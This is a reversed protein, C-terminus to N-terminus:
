NGGVFRLEGGAVVDKHDISAPRLQKGNLEVSVQSSGHLNGSTSLVFKEGAYYSQDLTIVARRFLPVGLRYEMSAPCAPYFGLASFVLWASIAGADDNGPLGSPGTGFQRDLIEGVLSRTRTEEGPFYTFLYPYAIDPENTITFQGNRFCEALKEVFPKSGGFLGALGDIAHPVFWTYHWANGEVYGPGGSGTWSGSGETRLPDFPTLWSGDRLRPRIFLSTTDFLNRYFGARRSFERYDDDKGFNGAMQALAWDSLCYELMTSAPGWVWWTETTDQEFPIFGYKLADHYGPRIPDSQPGPTTANKRCAAYAASSDFDRIGKLWSDAIVPVAPDGVMMYTENAALEWKPLWGSEKYMDVMTGVMASQRGPYVLTLFPHLTRYTDWLSFVTYRDRHDYRGTGKRGMLPYEGNVDSIVNPHILTHYLATYFKVKNERVDTEVRIRELERQWAARASVRMEDFDRHGIEQERNRRANEVSVYSVGVRVIVPEGAELRFTLWAGVASDQSSASTNRSPETGTWVGHNVPQRSFEASFYVTQRNAEGCFAGSINYGEVVTDSRFAAAGGGLLNLSRGADIVINIDGSKRATFRTIGCRTSATAEAFVQPENMTSAFYGPSAVRDRLTCRYEDPETRLQGRVATIVISGLDSCGTGSLHVHGFGYFTDRDHLYGSASGPATHPSVSVMGWPLLAGPFTNGGGATGIFPDVYGTVDQGFLVIPSLLLFLLPTSKMSLSEPYRSHKVPGPARDVPGSDM